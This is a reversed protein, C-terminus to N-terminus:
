PSFVVLFEVYLSFALMVRTGLLTPKNGNRMRLPCGDVARALLLWKRTVLILQM